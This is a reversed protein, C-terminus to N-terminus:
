RVINIDIEKADVLLEYLRQGLTSNGALQSYEYYEESSIFNQYSDYTVFRWNVAHGEEPYIMYLRNDGTGNWRLYRGEYNADRQILSANQLRYFGDGVPIVFWSYNDQSGHDVWTGGDYDTFINNEGLYRDPHEVVDWFEYSGEPADDETAEQFWVPYGFQALSARTSWENGSAFFRKGEPNYLYYWSGDFSIEDVFELGQPEPVDGWVDEPIVLENDTTVKATYNAVSIENGTASVTLRSNMLRISGGYFNETCGVNLQIVNKQGPVFVKGDMSFMVVRLAGNNWSYSFSPNSDAMAGEVAVPDGDLYLGNSLVIDTQLGYISYGGQALDISVTKVEGTNIKFGDMYLSQAMASTFGAILLLTLLSLRKFIGKHKM